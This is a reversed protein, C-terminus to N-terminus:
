EGFGAFYGDVISKAGDADATSCLVVCNGKQTLVARDIKAAEQPIYDEFSAKLDATYAEMEELVEGAAASDAAEFVAAHDAYAGSGMYVVAATGEPLTFFAGLAEEKLPSMQCDFSVTDLLEEMFAHEDIDYNQSGCGAATLCVALLLAAASLLKRRAKM